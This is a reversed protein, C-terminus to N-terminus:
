DDQEARGKGRGGQGLRAGDERDEPDAWAGESVFGGDNPPQAAGGSGRAVASNVERESCARPFQAARAHAGGHAHTIM